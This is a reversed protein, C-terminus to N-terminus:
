FIVDNEYIYFNTVQWFSSGRGDITGSGNVTLGIIGNFSIWRLLKYESSWAEKNHPAVINGNFQSISYM